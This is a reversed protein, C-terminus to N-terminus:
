RTIVLNTPNVNTTITNFVDSSRLVVRGDEQVAIVTAYRNYQDIVQNGVCIQAYRSSICGQTKAIRSRDLNSTITNFVDNAQVVFTNNTSLGIVKAYSSTSINIVSENACLNLNCGNRVALEDRRVNNTITNFVDNARVAYSGNFSVGIVTVFQNRFIVSEGQNVNRYADYGTQPGPYQPGPYQPGPNPNPYPNSPGPNTTEYRKCDYVGRMRLDNIRIRCQKMAEQCDFARITEITRGRQDVMDAECSLRAFASAATLTMAAALIMKKM